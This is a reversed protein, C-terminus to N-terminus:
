DVQITKDEEDTEYVRGNINTLNSKMKTLNTLNSKLFAILSVGLPQAYCTEPLQLM